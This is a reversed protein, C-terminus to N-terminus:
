FSKFISCNCGSILFAPLNRPSSTHVHFSSTNQNEEDFSMLHKCVSFLHRNKTLKEITMTLECQPSCQPRLSRLRKWTQNGLTKKKQHLADKIKTQSGNEGLQTSSIHTCLTKKKTQSGNVGMVRKCGAAYLKDPHLADKNKDRM